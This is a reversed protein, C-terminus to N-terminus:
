YPEHTLMVNLLWSNFLSKVVDDYMIDECNEILPYETNLVEPRNGGLYAVTKEMGRLEDLPADEIGRSDSLPDYYLTVKESVYGFKKLITQCVDKNIEIDIKM